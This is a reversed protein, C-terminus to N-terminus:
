RWLDRFRTPSLETYRVTNSISRHGLYAQLTRTDVGDNALKFGTAHRLMHPHIPFGLKAGEGARQVMRLFGATSFPAGRESTFVFASKPDQERLLRRLARLEDGRIPHVADTSGKLRRVHLNAANFDIQSWELNVLESVRLGHRYCVLIMTSDRRGHRNKGAAKLLREVETSTLYERRRYEANALRRPMEVTRNKNTPPVLRLTPKTM